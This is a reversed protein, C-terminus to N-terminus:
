NLKLTKKLKEGLMKEFLWYGIYGTLLSVAFAVVTGIVTATNLMEFDVVMGIIMIVFYHTLYFSYSIKGFNMISSPMKIGALGILVTIIVLFSLLINWEIVKRGVYVLVLGVVAVLCLWFRKKNDLVGKKEALKYLYFVIVGTVYNLWYLRGMFHSIPNEPLLNGIIVVSLCIISCIIGRYKQSLKMAVFFVLIFWVDYGMTWAPGVIPRIVSNTKLGGRSYPICFLSKILETFSIDDFFGFGSLLKSAVFAAITLTWYLPLLRILRKAVFNKPCKEQTTYMMLFSSICFFLNVGASFTIGTIYSDGFGIHSLMVGMAAIFRILQLCPLMQKKEAM